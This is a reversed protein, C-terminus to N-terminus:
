VSSCPRLFQLPIDLDFSFPHIDVARGALVGDVETIELQKGKAGFKDFAYIFAAVVKPTHQSAALRDNLAMTDIYQDGVQCHYGEALVRNVALAVPCEKCRSQIGTNIDHQTVNITTKM